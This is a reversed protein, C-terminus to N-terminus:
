DAHSHDRSTVPGGMLSLLAGEAQMSKQKEVSILQSMHELKDHPFCVELAQSDLESGHFTVTTAPVKEKEPESPLGTEDCLEHM